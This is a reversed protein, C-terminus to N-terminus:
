RGDPNPTFPVGILRGYWDLKAAEIAAMRKDWEMATNWSTIMDGDSTRYVLLVDVLEGRKAQALAHELIAVADRARQEASDVIDADPNPPNPQVPNCKVIAIREEAM